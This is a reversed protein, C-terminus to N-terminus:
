ADDFCPVRRVNGAADKLLLYKKNAETSAAQEQCKLYVANTAVDIDGGVTLGGALVGAGAIVSFDVALDSGLIRFKDSVTVSRSYMRGVTNLWHLRIEEDSLGRNFVCVEDITGYWNQGGDKNSGIRFAENSPVPQGTTTIIAYKKGNIYSTIDTDSGNAAFKMTVFVPINIPFAYGTNGYRMTGNDRYSSYLRGNAWVSMGYNFQKRIIYAADPLTDNTLTVVASLTFPITLDLSAADPVNVYDGGDFSLAKGFKGDTWTPAAAGAGFAGDNGYPSQDYVITGTGEEFPLYLVCGYDSGYIPMWVSPADIHLYGDAKINLVTDLSSWIQLASDRFQVYGDATLLVDAFTPSATTLVSQANVGSVYGHEAAILHYYEDATGGQLGALDNHTPASVSPFLTLYASEVSLANPQGQQIIIKAALVAFESLSDHLGTPISALKADSLKYNGWGYVSHLDGDFHIYIWHVGYRNATLNQLAGSGDDYQTNSILQQAAVQTWGVGGDRYWATFRHANDTDQPPTNIANAAIYFIGATSALFRNVSSIVGGSAREIKRYILREHNHRVRNAINVGGQVIHLVAGAKYVRGLTFMDTQRITTRDDTSAFAPTDNVYIYNVDNDTLVGAAINGAVLKFFKLTGMDANAIKYMGQLESINVGGAGDDSLVGGTLIGGSFKDIFDGLTTYAPAGEVQGSLKVDVWEPSADTTYDQDLLSASEVDLNGGLIFTRAANELDFTLIRDATFNPNSDSFLQLFFATTDDVIKTLGPPPSGGSGGGGVSGGGSLARELYRVRNILADLRTRKDDIGLKSSYPNPVQTPM